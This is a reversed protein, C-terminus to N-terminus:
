VYAEAGTQHEICQLKTYQPTSYSSAYSTDPVITHIKAYHWDGNFTWKVQMDEKIREDYRVTITQTITIQHALGIITDSESPEKIEAYIGTGDGGVLYDVWDESRM